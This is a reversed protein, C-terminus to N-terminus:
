KVRPYHENALQSVPLFAKIENLNAILGGSNAGIIKIALIEGNERFNKLKQWNKQEHAGALSLEVFGNENELDIIKAAVSDGTKLNKLLNKANSLEVGYVIGTGFKDLDFYVAGRTKKILKAETLDSEKLFPILDPDKKMLHNLPSSTKKNITLLM